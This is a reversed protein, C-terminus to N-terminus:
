NAQVEGGGGWGVGGWRRGGGGRVRVGRSPGARPESRAPRAAARFRGIRGNLIRPKGGGEERETSEGLGRSTSLPPRRRRRRPLPPYAHLPLAAPEGFLRVRACVHTRACVRVRVRARVCVCACVFLCM